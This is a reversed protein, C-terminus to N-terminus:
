AAKTRPMVIARSLVMGTVSASQIVRGALFVTASQSFVCLATGILFLVLGAYIVPRRGYIDSLPGIVLQLMAMMILYLSLGLQVTAYPAGLDAAISPMSPVFLNIALPSVAALLILTVLAPRPGTWEDHQLDPPAPTHRNM